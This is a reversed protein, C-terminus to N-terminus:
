DITDNVTEFKILENDEFEFTENNGNKRKINVIINKPIRKNNILHKKYLYAINKSNLRLNKSNENLSDSNIIEIIYDKEENRPGVKEPRANIEEPYYLKGIEQIHTDDLDLGDDSKDAEVKCSIAFILISFLLVKKM